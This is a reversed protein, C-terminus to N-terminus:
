CVSAQDRMKCVHVKPLYEGQIQPNNIMYIIAWQLTKSTTESGALFLDLCCLVLNGENFGLEPTEGQQWICLPVQQCVNIPGPQHTGTFFM